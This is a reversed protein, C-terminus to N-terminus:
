GGGYILRVLVRGVIGLAHPGVNELSDHHTHWYANAPGYDFDIINITRIGAQNLPVHDDNIYGWSRRTFVSGYGMAEATRWVRDVVEPAHRRSYGEIRFEPDRDGVMDLLIGYLPRYGAPLNAAFHKAGLLMDDSTPGYDEGDTLLVDVGIPPPHRHLVDALELLVAVGSAGDNAGPIPRSRLAPDREADATPRTDWHALLLVRERADPRFSAFVNTLALTDGARTVHAFPLLRVSDARARLYDHMWALQARHGDTNPVRPGFELQTALLAFAHDASFYPDDGGPQQAASGADGCAGTVAVLLLAAVWVRAAGSGSGCACAPACASACASASV